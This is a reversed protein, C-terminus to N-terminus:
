FPRALETQSITMLQNLKEPGEHRMEVEGIAISNEVVLRCREWRRQM